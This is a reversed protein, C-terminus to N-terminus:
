QDLTRYAVRVVGARRNALRSFTAPSLDLTRGRRVLRRAPGRDAVVATCVYGNARLEVRTGRALHWCALYLGSVPDLKGWAGHHDTFFSAKTATYDALSREPGCAQPEPKACAARFGVLLALVLLCAVPLLWPSRFM